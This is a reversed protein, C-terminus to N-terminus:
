PFTFASGWRTASARDAFESAPRHVPAFLDDRVFWRCMKGVRDHSALRNAVVSGVYRECAFTIVCHDSPRPGEIRENRTSAHNERHEETADDGPERLSESVM